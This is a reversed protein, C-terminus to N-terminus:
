RGPRHVGDWQEPCLVIQEPCWWASAVQNGVFPFWGMIAAANLALEQEGECDRTDQGIPCLAASLAAEHCLWTPM